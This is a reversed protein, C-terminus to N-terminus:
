PEKYKLNSKSSTEVKRYTHRWMNSHMNSQFPIGYECIKYKAISFSPERTHIYLSEGNTVVYANTYALLIM